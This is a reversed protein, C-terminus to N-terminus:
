MKEIAILGFKILSFGGYITSCFVIINLLIIIIYFIKILKIGKSPDENLTIKEIIFINNYNAIIATAYILLISLTAIGFSIWSNELIKLKKENLLPKRKELFTISLIIGGATVAFIVGLAKYCIDLFCQM